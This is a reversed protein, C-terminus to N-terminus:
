IYNLKEIERIIEETLDDFMIRIRIMGDLHKHRNITHIFAENNSSVDKVWNIRCSFDSSFKMYSKPNLLYYVSEKYIVKTVFNTTISCLLPNNQWEERLIREYIKTKINYTSITNKCSETLANQRKLKIEESENQIQIKALESRMSSFDKKEEDPKKAWANKLNLRLIDNEEKSLSARYEKNKLGTKQYKNLGNEDIQLMKSKTKEVRILDTGNSKATQSGQLSRKQLISLGDEGREQLRKLTEPKFGGTYGGDGGLTMNYGNNYTDYYAIWYKECENDTEFLQELVTLEFDDIGYCKIARHFHLTSGKMADKLHKVIRREVNISKGIYSKGSTLSTMKYIM